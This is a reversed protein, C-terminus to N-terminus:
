NGQHTKYIYIYIHTILTYMYEYLDQILRCQPTLNYSYIYVCICIYVYIYM